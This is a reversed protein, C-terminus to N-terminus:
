GVKLERPDEVEQGCIETFPCYGCTSGSYDLPFIQQEISREMENAQLLLRQYDQETRYGANYMKTNRAHFWHGGRSWGAFREYGDEWGPVSGWFEPRETAYCYATFQVNFKLREPVYSGTKFDIVELASLGPRYWLKDITGSLVHEGLPVEFRLETGILRGETWPALHDYKELMQIGRKRLTEKTGGRHWFDIHEGLEEPHDWYHNFTRLALTLDYGYNEYVEVAYHWVSGLVTLSGVSEEGLNLVHSYYFQRPCSAFQKLLSQRLFM